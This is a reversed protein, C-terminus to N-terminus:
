PVLRQLEDGQASALILQSDGLLQAGLLASLRRQLPQEACQLLQALVAVLVALHAVADVLQQGAQRIGALEAVGLAQGLRQVVATRKQFGLQQAAQPM